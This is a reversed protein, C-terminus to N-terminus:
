RKEECSDCLTRQWGGTRLVGRSGCVECIRHSMSEAFSIMGLVESVFRRTELSDEDGEDAGDVSQFTVYFRLGGFKEKVQVAKCQPTNKQYKQRFDTKYQISNCLTEIL